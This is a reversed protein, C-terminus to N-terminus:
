FLVIFLFVVIRRSQSLLRSYRTLFYRSTGFLYCIYSIFLYYKILVM